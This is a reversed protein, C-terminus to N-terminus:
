ALEILLENKAVHMGSKVYIKKVKGAVTTRIDNFMKMADLSLLKDGKKVKAGEKVYLTKITGPIFSSIKKPNDPVYKKRLNHKRTSHTDYKLVESLAITIIPNDEQIIEKKEEM